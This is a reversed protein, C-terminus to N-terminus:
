GAWARAEVTGTVAPLGDRIVRVTVRVTSPGDLDGLSLRVTADQEWRLHRGAILRNTGHLAVLDSAGHHRAALEIGRNSLVVVDISAIEGALGSVVSLHWSATFALVACRPACAAPVHGFVVPTPLIELALEPSPRAPDGCSSLALALPVVSWTVRM